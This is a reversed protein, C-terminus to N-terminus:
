GCKALPKIAEAYGTVLADGYGGLAEVIAKMNADADDTLAVKIDTTVQGLREVPLGLAKGYDQAKKLVEAASSDLLRGIEQPM